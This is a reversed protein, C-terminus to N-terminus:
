NWTIVMDKADRLKLADSLNTRTFETKVGWHDVVILTVPSGVYKFHLYWDTKEGDIKWTITVRDNLTGSTIPVKDCFNEGNGETFFYVFGEDFDIIWYVDYSGSKNKYSFVGTKGETATEYDNSSYFVTGSAEPQLTSPATETPKNPDDEEKMHYTIVIETDKAFVDGRNFDTRAHVSVEEVEGEATWGWVIDYLIKTQINTFGADKFEKEIDKYDKFKCTSAAIPVMAENEGVAGQNEVYITEIEVKDDYCRIKYSAEIDGTLDIEVQGNVSSSDTSTFTLTYKDEKMRYEFEADDGHTLTKKDYPEIALLSKDANLSFRIYLPRGFIRIAKKFVRISGNDYRVSIYTKNSDM